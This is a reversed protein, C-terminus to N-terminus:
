EARTQRPRRLYYKEGLYEVEKLKNDEILKDVIKWSVGKTSLLRETGDRRMPHVTTIGLLNESVDGTSMFENGEYGTLLEVHELKEKLMQYALNVTKEPPPKVWNEPPPRTPIAVYAKDPRIGKPFEAVGSIGEENDKVGKVLMTETALVGEFSKSFKNIGELITELKLPHYPRNVNKWTSSNVSDVKLSVWDAKVLEEAADERWVLSSNTIVAIKVGLSKLSDPVGLGSVVFM